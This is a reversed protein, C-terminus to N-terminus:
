HDCVRTVMRLVRRLVGVYKLIFPVHSVDGEVVTDKYTLLKREQPLNGGAAHEETSGVAVLPCSSWSILLFAKLKTEKFVALLKKMMLRKTYFGTSYYSEKSAAKKSKRPYNM